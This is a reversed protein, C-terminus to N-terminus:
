SRCFIMHIIERVSSLHDIIVNLDQQILTTVCLGSLRIIVCRRTLFSEGVRVSSVFVIFIVVTEWSESSLDHDLDLNHDCGLVHM